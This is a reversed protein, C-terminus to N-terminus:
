KQKEEKDREGKRCLIAAESDHLVVNFIEEVGDMSRAMLVNFECRLTLAM